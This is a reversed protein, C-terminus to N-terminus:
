WRRAAPMAARAEAWVAAVRGEAARVVGTVAAVRARVAVVRKAGGTAVVAALWSAM